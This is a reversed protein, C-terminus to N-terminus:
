GESDDAAEAPSVDHRDLWDRLITAYGQWTVLMGDVDDCYAVLGTVLADLQRSSLVPILKRHLSRLDGAFAVVAGALASDVLGDNLLRRAGEGMAVDLADVGEQAALEAGTPWTWGEFCPGAVPSREGEALRNRCCAARERLPGLHLPWHLVVFHQVNSWHACIWESFRASDSCDALESMQAETQGLDHLTEALHWVLLEDKGICLRVQSDLTSAAQILCNAGEEVQALLSGM